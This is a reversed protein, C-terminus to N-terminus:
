KFVARWVLAAFGVAGIAVAVMVVVLWIGLATDAPDTAKRPLVPHEARYRAEARKAAELVDDIPDRKV